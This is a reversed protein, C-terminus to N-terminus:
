KGSAAQTRKLEDEVVERIEAYPRNGSLMRGNIFLTPTSSVGAKRADDKDKQIAAAQKGSDLCGNFMATNLGMTQARKKLSPIDLHAQDGFMSDYFEWFHKQENACMSAEAAKQAFPHITTLPFQRYVLRVKDAYNKEVLQLTPHLGGCFPCEFDAFEVITVPARAPGRSPYGETAIDTRLPDLFTTVKFNRRLNNMLMDRYRKRSSDIMYQRVQPLVQSKQGPIDAKNAEYFRDVEEPSPTEVNSEVEAQLLEAKTMHDRTAEAEILKDDIISNLAKWLIELRARDYAAQPQPRNANLKALDASATQMMQQETVNEGNVTAVIRSNSQAAASVSTALLAAILLTKSIKM